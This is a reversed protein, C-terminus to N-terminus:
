KLKLEVAAEVQQKNTIGKSNNKNNKYPNVKNKKLDSGSVIM